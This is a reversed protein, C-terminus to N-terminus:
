LTYKRSLYYKSFSIRQLNELSLSSYIFDPLYEDYKVELLQMGRPMVPRRAPLEKELFWEPRACSMIERDLTVRVNGNPYVFPTRDYEVIVKPRLLRTHWAACLRRLLPPVDEGLAAPLGRGEMFARCQAETLPCSLKRTMGCNKMKLELSIRSASGNYIRIRFKERPDTGDENEYYCTNDADDFYLSRIRYFGGCGEPVHSDLALLQRVREALLTLQAQSCAYKLEHRYTEATEQKGMRKGQRDPRLQTKRRPM